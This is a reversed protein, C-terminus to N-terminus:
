LAATSISSLNSGLGETELTLPSSDNHKRKLHRQILCNEVNQDNSLSRGESYLGYFCFAKKDMRCHKGVIGKKMFHNYIENMIYLVNINGSRDRDRDEINIAFHVETVWEDGEVDQDGVVVLVYNRLEEDDEEDKIPLDQQYVHMEAFEKGRIMLIEDKEFFKKLEDIIDKQLALDTM